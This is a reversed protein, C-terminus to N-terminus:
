AATAQVHRTGVALLEAESWVTVFSRGIRVRHLPHLDHDRAWRAFSRPNVGALKAAATTTLTKVTGM